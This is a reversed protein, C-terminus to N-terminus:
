EPVGETHETVHLLLDGNEAQSQHLMVGKGTLKALISRPVVMSGGSATVLLIVTSLLRQQYEDNSQPVWNADFIM